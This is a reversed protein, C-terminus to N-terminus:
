KKVSVQLVQHTTIEIPPYGPIRTSSAIITSMVFIDMNVSKFDVSIIPDLWNSYKKDAVKICEFCYQMFSINFLFSKQVNM